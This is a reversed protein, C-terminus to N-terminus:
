LGAKREETAALGREPLVFPTSTLAVGVGGELACSFRHSEAGSLANAVIAAVVVRAQHRPM